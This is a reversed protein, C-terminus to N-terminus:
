CAETVTIIQTLCQAAAYSTATGEYLSEQRILSFVLLPDVNFRQAAPLVLDLYAIPFRLAAIAKPAEETPVKANDLMKAIAEIAVRYLGIKHYYTALQYVAVPNNENDATLSDFEGKAEKYAALDWLENGRVM